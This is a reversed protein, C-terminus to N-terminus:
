ECSLYPKREPTNPCEYLVCECIKKLIKRQRRNSEKDFYKGYCRFIEEIAMNSFIKGVLKLRAMGRKITRCLN